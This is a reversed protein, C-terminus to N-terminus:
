TESPIDPAEEPSIRRLVALTEVVAEKAFLGSALALRYVRHPAQGGENPDFFIDHILLRGGPLIHRAWGSYDAFADAFGHGGDIFVLSLPTAWQRAALLSPCVIPVVTEELGAASLTRRFFPLTDVRGTAPDALEPDFYAEGPQQEASGRHHDVSFLVAATEKCAAGLCVTSKGCYGGVELCPGLRTAKLATEYLCRGEAKQMFGKTRAFLAAPFPM